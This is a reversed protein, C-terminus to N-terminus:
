TVYITCPIWSYPQTHYKRTRQVANAVRPLYRIDEKINYYPTNIPIVVIGFHRIKRWKSM